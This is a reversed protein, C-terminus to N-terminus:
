RSPRSLTVQSAPLALSLGLRQKVELVLDDPGINATVQVGVTPVAVRCSVGGAGSHAVVM